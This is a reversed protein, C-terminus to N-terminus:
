KVIWSNGDENKELTVNSNLSVVPRIEYKDCASSDDSGFIYDADLGDPIVFRVHFIALGSDFGAMVCPSALWYATSAYVLGINKAYHMESTDNKKDILYYNSSYSTIDKGDPTTRNELKMGLQTELEGISLPTPTVILNSNSDYYSGKEGTYGLIRTVHDINMSKATGKDTSYLVACAKDLESPGNLYGGKGSLNMKPSANAVDAAIELRGDEGIGIYKWTASTDTKLKQAQGQSIETYDPATNENGSTTYEKETLIYGTVTDGVKIGEKIAAKASESVNTHVTYSGDELGEVVASKYNNKDLENNAYEAFKKSTPANIDRESESMLEWNVRLTNVYEKLTSDDNAQRAKKANEIPNNNAISLIVAVALIIIVIITIVLVILSIGKKTEKKM